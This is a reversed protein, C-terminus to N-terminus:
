MILQTSTRSTISAIIDDAQDRTIYQCEVKLCTATDCGSDLILGKLGIPDGTVWTFQGFGINFSHLM